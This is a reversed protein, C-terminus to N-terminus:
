ANLGNSPDGSTNERAIGSKRYGRKDDLHVFALTKGSM